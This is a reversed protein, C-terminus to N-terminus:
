RAHTRVAIAHIAALAYGIEADSAFWPLSVQACRLLWTLV